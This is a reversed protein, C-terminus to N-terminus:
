RLRDIVLRLLEGNAQVAKLEGELDGPVAKAQGTASVRAYLDVVAHDQLARGPLMANSEDLSFKAPWQSVPARYVALPMPSGGTAKAYVLLVAGSPLGSLLQPSVTVEGAIAWRPATRERTDALPPMAPYGLSQDAHHPTLAMPSGVALYILVALVPVGMTASWSVLTTSQSRPAAPDEEGDARGAPWVLMVVGATIAVTFVLFWMSESM